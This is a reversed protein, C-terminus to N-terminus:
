PAIFDALFGVLIFLIIVVLGVAAARNRLLRRFAKIWPNDPPRSLHTADRLSKDIIERNSFIM